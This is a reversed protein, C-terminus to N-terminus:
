EVGDNVVEDREFNLTSAKGDEQDLRRGRGDVPELFTENPQAHRSVFRLPVLSTHTIGINLGTDPAIPFPHVRSISETREIGTRIIILHFSITTIQIFQIHTRSLRQTSSSSTLSFWQCRGCRPIISYEQYSDHRSPHTIDSYLARRVRHHNTYRPQAIGGLPAHQCDYVLCAMHSCYDPRFIVLGSHIVFM